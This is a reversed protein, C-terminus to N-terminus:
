FVGMGFEKYLKIVTTVKLKYDIKYIKIAERVLDKAQKKLAKDKLYKSCRKKFAVYLIPRFVLPYMMKKISYPFACESVLMDNNRKDTFVWKNIKPKHIALLEPCYANQMGSDYAILCPPLEEYGYKNQFYPSKKFFSKRLFHAGGCFMKCSYIGDGIKKGAIAQRNQQWATDYVQAAITVVKPNEEFIKIAKQFFDPNTDSVVSDDDLGYVYAGRTHFYAKARGGGAGINESMKEYYYPFGCNGLLNKVVIETDDTSANDIIVFETEKPLMCALCSELAEKLQEARNMTVVAISLVM